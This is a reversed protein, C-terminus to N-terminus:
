EDKPATEEAEVSKKCKSCLVCEPLWDYVRVKKKCLFCPYTGIFTAKMSGRGYVCSGQTVRTVM